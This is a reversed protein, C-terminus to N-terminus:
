RGSMVKRAQRVQERDIPATGLQTKRAAMREGTGL